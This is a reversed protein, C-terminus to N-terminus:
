SESTEAPYTSRNKPGSIITDINSQDEDGVEFSAHQAARLAAALYRAQKQAALAKAEAKKTELKSKDLATRLENNEVRLSHLHVQDLLIASPVTNSTSKRPEPTPSSVIPAEPTQSNLIAQAQYKAIGPMLDRKETTWNKQEASAAALLLGITREDVALSHIMIPGQPDIGVIGYFEHLQRAGLGESLLEITNGQTLALDFATLQNLEITWSKESGSNEDKLNSKFHLQFPTQRDVLGIAVFKAELLDSAMDISKAIRRQLQRTSIIQAAEDLSSGFRTVSSKHKSQAALLPTLTNQYAYVAWLPFAILYGFRVAYPINTDSAVLENQNFLHAVTTLLLVVITIIPLADQLGTQFLLYALGAVLVLIQVIAWITAQLTGNYYTVGSAVQSQWEQAFFLYLVGSLVLIVVLIIDSLRSSDSPQPILSWVLLAISMTNIAQELPPLIAALQQPNDNNLLGVLLLVFRGAFIAASAWTLRQAQSDEPYRRWRSFSIAFVVQLAFLTVLHYVVNGPPESLLRISQQLFDM